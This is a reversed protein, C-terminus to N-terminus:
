EFIASRFGNEAACSQRMRFAVGVSMLFRCNKQHFRSGNGVYAFRIHCKFVASREIKNGNAQAELATQNRKVVKITQYKGVTLGKYKARM